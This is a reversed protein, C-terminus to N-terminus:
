ARRGAPARAALRAGADDAHRLLRAIEAATAAAARRATENKPMFTTAGARDLFWVRFPEPPDGELVLEERPTEAPRAAFFPIADLVFPRRVRGFVANVAAILGPDSRWNVDLVHSAEAYARAALHACTEGGRCRD